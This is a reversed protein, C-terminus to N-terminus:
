ARVAAVAYSRRMSRRLDSKREHAAFAIVSRTTM